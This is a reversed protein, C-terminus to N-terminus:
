VNSMISQSVLNFFVAFSSLARAWIEKATNKLRTECDIMDFTQLTKNTTLAMLLAPMASDEFEASFSFLSTNTELVKAVEADCLQKRGLTLSTLTSNQHLTEILTHYQSHCESQCQEQFDVGDFLDLKTISTNNKLAVFLSDSPSVGEFSLEKLTNRKIVETFSNTAQKTFHLNDGYGGRKRQLLSISEMKIRSNTELVSMIDDIESDIKLDTMLHKLSGKNCRLVEAIRDGAGKVHSDYGWFSIVISQLAPLQKLSEILINYDNKNIVIDFLYVHTISPSKPLLLLITYLNGPKPERGTCYNIDYEKLAVYSCILRVIEKPLKRIWSEEGVRPHTGMLFSIIAAQDDFVTVENLELFCWLMNSFITLKRCKGGAIVQAIKTEHGAESNLFHSPLLKHKKLTEDYNIFEEQSIREHTITNDTQCYSLVYKQQKSSNRFFFSGKKKRELLTNSKSSGTIPIFYPNEM